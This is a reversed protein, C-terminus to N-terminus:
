LHLTYNTRNEDSMRRWSKLDVALDVALKVIQPGTKAVLTERSFVAM